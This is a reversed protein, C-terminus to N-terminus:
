NIYVNTSGDRHLGYHADAGPFLGYRPLHSSPIFLPGLIPLRMM